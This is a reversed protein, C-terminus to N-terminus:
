SGSTGNLDLADERGILRIYVDELTSAGLAYEEAVGSEVLPRAWRIAQTADSENIQLHLRRGLRNHQRAFDPPPPPDKGPTLNVQLRLLSREAIKLSSPTGQAVIRGQDIVALRDVAQEAELVNHTVLLVTAGEAGLRRVQNWLLRRRLPDVDNTPEDLIVLRAPWVAAMIFGVLRTVGGSLRSGFTDVWEHLELAEILEAARRRVARRDGGRIRGILEVVECPRFSDIPLAGQPLYACFQRALAPDAVLDHGDLTISGSTPRLLGIIQKVLTTKGAGNPGLLGFVEGRQVELDIGDNALAGGAYRKSLRSIVLPAGERDPSNQKM